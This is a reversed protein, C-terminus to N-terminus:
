KTKEKKARYEKIAKGITEEAEPAAEQITRRIEELISRVDSSFTALYEDITHYTQM